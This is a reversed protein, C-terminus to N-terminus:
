RGGPRLRRRAASSVLQRLNVNALEDDNDAESSESLRARGAGAGSDQSRTLSSAGSSGESSIDSDGESDLAPRASGVRSNEKETDSKKKRRLKKSGEKGDARRKDAGDGVGEDSDEDTIKSAMDGIVDDSVPSTVEPTFKVEQDPESPTQQQEKGDDPAPAAPLDDGTSNERALQGCRAEGVEPAEEPVKNLAKELVEEPAEEPAKELANELAKELVEEPAKELAKEPFDEPVKEPAEEPYSPEADAEGPGAEASSRLSQLPACVDDGAAAGAQPEEAHHQETQYEEDDSRPGSADSARREASGARAVCQRVEAAAAADAAVDAAHHAEAASRHAGDVAGSRELQDGLPAPAPPAEDEWIEAGEPDCDAPAAVEGEVVLISEPQATMFRSPKLEAAVVMPNVEDEAEEHEAKPEPEPEPEPETARRTRLEAEILEQLSSDTSLPPTLVGDASVETREM